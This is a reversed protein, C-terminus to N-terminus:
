HIFLLALLLPVILGAGVLPWTIPRNIAHMKLILLGTIAFIGCALAFVDIFASWVAGTHRGKHLDNLWAIWGRDTREYELAGDRLGVRLWADGGPRPMAVYLEDPSWEISANPPVALKLERQLWDRLAAPLDAAKPNAPRALADRVAPPLTAKRNDTAPASEIQAAHNLTIGTLAFLLLGVLCIASSIWHWRLLQKLLAGRGKASARTIPVSSM